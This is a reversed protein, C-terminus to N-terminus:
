SVKKTFYFNAFYLLGWIIVTLIASWKVIKKRDIEGNTQVFKLGLMYLFGSIAFPTAVSVGFLYKEYKSCHSLKKDLEEVEYQLENIQEQFSM